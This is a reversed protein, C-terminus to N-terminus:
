DIQVFDKNLGVIEGNAEYIIYSIRFTKNIEIMSNLFRTNKEFDEFNDIDVNLIEGQTTFTFLEFILAFQLEFITTIFQQIIELQQFSQSVYNFSLQNIKTQLINM